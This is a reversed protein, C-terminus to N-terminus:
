SFLRLSTLTAKGSGSQNPVVVLRLHTVGRLDVSLNECEYTSGQPSFTYQQMFVGRFSKGGDSSFEARVEQTRAVRGEEVEFAIHSINQPVDFHLVIEETVDSHASEWRTAGIGSTGDLMNEIPHAAQESSYYVTAAAHVNIEHLHTHERTEPKPRTILQKRLVQHVPSNM